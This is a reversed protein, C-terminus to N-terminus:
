DLADPLRDSRDQTSGCGEKSSTMPTFYICDGGADTGNWGSIRELSCYGDKQYKCNGLCAIFSM